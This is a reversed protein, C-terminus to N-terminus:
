VLQNAITLLDKRLSAKASDENEANVKFDYNRDEIKFNIEYITKSSIKM